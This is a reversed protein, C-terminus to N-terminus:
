RAGGKALAAQARMKQLRINVENAVENPNNSTINFVPNYTDGANNITQGNQIEWHPLFVKCTM